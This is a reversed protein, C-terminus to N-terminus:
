YFTLHIRILSTFTFITFEPWMQVSVAKPFNNVHSSVVHSLNFFVCLFNEQGTNTVNSVVRETATIPHRETRTLRNKLCQYWLAVHSGIASPIFSLTHQCPRRDGPSQGGRLGGGTKQRAQQGPEQGRGQQHEYIKWKSNCRESVDEERPLGHPKREIHM